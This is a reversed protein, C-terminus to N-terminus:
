EEMRTYYYEGRAKQERDLVSDPKNARPRGTLPDRRFSLQMEKLFRNMAEKKELPPTAKGSVAPIGEFVMLRDSLYDLFLLDHDVVLVSTGKKFAMSRIIDALRLRDELDLFATPEDLLVLDAERALTLGVAVKQLEGGSLSTLPHDMLPELELRNAIEHQFFPLDLGESLMRATKGEEAKLYQPKYAAKCPLSLSVNDPALVGALMKVFTTKGIGNSGLCGLVEGKRIEGSDLSLHFSGLKKELSPYKALVEQKRQGEAALVNFHLAQSRFRVNETKLYGDLYENVGNRAAKRESVVGFVSKEGYFVYIYDSLYDLVALDHESAMVEKEASREKIKGAMKFRQRIDLYTCPEDFYYLSAKQLLAAAIAIRQLEGGSVESLKKALLPRIEFEQAAGKVEEPAGFKLLLEEVGLPQGALADIFQPKISVQVEKALLRQFYSQLESGRFHHLLEKEDPPSDLRAFNPRRKGSLLQLATTKGIGNRGILGVVSNKEPAPLNYLRFSNISYQFVPHGIRPSLNVISIAGFPCVHVCIMCGICTKEIIKPQPIDEREVICETGSRNVPCAKVCAWGCKDPFCKKYDIVAVRVQKQLQEKFDAM